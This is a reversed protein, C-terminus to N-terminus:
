QGMNFQGAKWTSATFKADFSPWYIWQGNFKQRNCHRAKSLTERDLQPTTQARTAINRVAQNYSTGRKVANKFSTAFPSKYQKSM